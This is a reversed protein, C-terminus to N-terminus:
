DAVFAWQYGKHSKRRQQGRICQYVARRDFGAKAVDHTTPFIRVVKGDKLQIVGVKERFPPIPKHLGNTLAHASNEKATAWELNEIRFDHKNGNKHNIQPKNEPNPIFAEALLRHVTARRKKSQTHLLVMPYGGDPYYIYLIREKVRRNFGNHYEIIRALSKVKGLNSIQYTGEFDKVDEWVETQMFHVAGPTSPKDIKEGSLLIADVRRPTNQTTYSNSCSSLNILLM